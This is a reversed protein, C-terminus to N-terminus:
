AGKGSSDRTKRKRKLSVPSVLDQPEVGAQHGKADGLGSLPIAPRKLKRGVHPTDEERPLAGGTEDGCREDVTDSAPQETDLYPIRFLKSQQNPSGFNIDGFYKSATLGGPSASPPILLPQAEVNTAAGVTGLDALRETGPLIKKTANWSLRISERLTDLRAKHRSQDFWPDEKAQQATPRAKWDVTLCARALDKVIHSVDLRSSASIAEIVQEVMEQTLSCLDAALATMEQSNILFLMITGIGWVDVPREHEQQNKYM